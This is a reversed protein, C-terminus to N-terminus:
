LSSRWGGKWVHARKVIIVHYKHNCPTQM